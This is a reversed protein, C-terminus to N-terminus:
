PLPPLPDPYSPATVFTQPESPVVPLVPGTWSSVGGGPQIAYGGSNDWSTNGQPGSSYGGNADWSTIQGDPSISYGSNQQSHAILPTLLVALVTLAIVLRDNM